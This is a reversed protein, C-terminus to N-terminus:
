VGAPRRARCPSCKTGWTGAVCFYNCWCSSGLQFSAHPHPDPPPAWGAIQNYAKFSQEIVTKRKNPEVVTQAERSDPDPGPLCYRHEQLEARPGSPDFAPESADASDAAAAHLLEELTASNLLDEDSPVPLQFWRECVKLLSQNGEHFTFM